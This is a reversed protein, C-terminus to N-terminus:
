KYDIDDHSAWGVDRAIDDMKNLDEEKIIPRHTVEETDVHRSPPRSDLRNRGNLSSPPANPPVPGNHAFNNRYM